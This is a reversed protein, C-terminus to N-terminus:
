FTPFDAPQWPASSATGLWRQRWIWEAFLTHVLTGRLGGPAFSTPALFQAERIMAATELIHANAWRNYAYLMQFDQKNMAAGKSHRARHVFAMNEHAVSCVSVSRVSTSRKDCISLRRGCSPSNFCEISWRVCGM